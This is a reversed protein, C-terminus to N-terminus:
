PPGALLVPAADRVHEVLGALAEALPAVAAPAIAIRPRGRTMGVLREAVFRVDRYRAPLEEAALRHRMWSFRAASVADLGLDRAADLAASADLAGLYAARADLREWAVADLLLEVGVHAAARAGGRGLGAGDFSARARGTLAVFAGHEHFWADVEHHHAVGRAIAEHPVVRPVRLSAMGALDPLMAGLGHLASPSRHLAVLAHAVFNVAAEGRSRM